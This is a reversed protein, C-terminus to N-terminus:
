PQYNGGIGGSFNSSPRVDGQVGPTAVAGAASTGGDYLTEPVPVYPMGRFHALNNFAPGVSSSSNNCAARTKKCGATVTFFDGNLPPSPFPRVVEITGVSLTYRKIVRTLGANAGSTFAIRGQDYYGDPRVLGSSFRSITPTFATNSVASIDRFSAESLTCATDFLTNLCTTQVLNRPMAVNLLEIDDHVDIECQSRGTDVRNVTGVYWLAGQAASPRWDVSFQTGGTFVAPYFVKTMSIRASDLVRARAASLFAQGAVNPAGDKDDFQPSITLAMSGVEFGLSQKIAGRQIILGTRYDNGGYTTSVQGTTFRLTPGNLIAFDYLEVQAWTGTALIARLAANSKSKM